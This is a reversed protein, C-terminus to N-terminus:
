RSLDREENREDDKDNPNADVRPGEQIRDLRANHLRETNRALIASFLKDLTLRAFFVLMFYMQSYCLTKYFPEWHNRRLDYIM